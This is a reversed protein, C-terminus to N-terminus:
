GSRQRWGWGCRRTCPASIAVFRASAVADRPFEDVALDVAVADIGRSRLAALPWALNLPQHGLEYCSLLLVPASM